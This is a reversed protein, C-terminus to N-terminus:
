ARALDLPLSARVTFGGGVDPGAELTGGYLAVRERMGLLGHGVQGTQTPPQDIDANRIEMELANPTYSLSVVTPATGAHKLSNTLAEQIIRYASIDPGSPLNTPQGQVQLAIPLGAQRVRRLLTDLDALSPQPARPITEDLDLLGLVQNLDRHAHHGQDQIARVAGLARNPSTTLVQEAAGAQLVMVSVAHAVSDHLDRALRAREDLTALRARADRERALRTTLTRLQEARQRYTRVMRGGIWPIALWIVFLVATPTDVKVLVASSIALTTAAAGFNAVRVPVRTAVTYMVAITALLSALGTQIGLLLLETVTVTAALVIALLPFRQRSLIAVFALTAAVIITLRTADVPGGLVLPADSASILLLALLLDNWPWGPLLSRWRAPAAISLLTVAAFTPKDTGTRLLHLIRRVEAIAQRGTDQIAALAALAQDSKNIAMQREAGGAQVVMLSVAHAVTDHLEAAMRQREQAVALRESADREAELQAALDKLQESQRRYIQVGRGALWALVVQIAFFIVGRPVSIVMVALVVAVGALSRSTAARSGLSYLIFLGSIEYFPNDEIGGWLHFIMFAAAFVVAATLPARQRWAIPLTALVATVAWIPGARGVAGEVEGLVCCAAALVVDGRTSWRLNRLRGLWLTFAAPQRTTM